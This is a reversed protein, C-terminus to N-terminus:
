KLLDTLISMLNNQLNHSNFKILSSPILLLILSDQFTKILYIKFKRCAKQSSVLESLIIKNNHM